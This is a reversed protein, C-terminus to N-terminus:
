RPHTAYFRVAAERVRELGSPGSGWSPTQSPDTQETNEKTLPRGEVAEQPRGRGENPQKAPVVGSYSEGGGHMHSKYSM